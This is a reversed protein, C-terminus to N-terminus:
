GVSWRWCLASHPSWTSRAAGLEGSVAAVFDADTIASTRAGVLHLAPSLGQVGDFTWTGPGADRETLTAALDTLDVRPRPRCTTYHVWTEYRYRLVPPGTGITLVKFRDTANHIAYPHAADVDTASFRHVTQATWSPPVTVIALDLEPHETITIDGAAIALETVTIHADEEAWYEEFSGVDEALAVLQPLVVDYADGEAAAGLNASAIAARAADRHHFRGFDGARAIDILRERRALAADPQTLAFVAVLGDQDFHNNTVYPADVHFEPDDLYNFAIEASLDARLTEPTAAGPWHSLTLVTGDQASGDVVVHPTDTLESYARYDM